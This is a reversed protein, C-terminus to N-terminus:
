RGEVVRQFVDGAQEILHTVLKAIKWREFQGAVQRRLCDIIGRVASTAMCISNLYKRDHGGPAALGGALTNM